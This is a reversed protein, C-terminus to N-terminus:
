HCRKFEVKYTRLFQQLEDEILQQEAVINATEDGASPDAGVLDELENIKALYIETLWTALMM